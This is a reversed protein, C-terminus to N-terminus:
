RVQGPTVDAAGGGFVQRVYTIVDARQNDTLRQRFGPMSGRGADVIAIVLSPDHLRVIPNGRLNPYIDDYGNGDIQHCAACQEAYVQRGKVAEGGTRAGCATLLPIGAALCIGLVAGAPRM